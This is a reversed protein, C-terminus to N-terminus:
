QLDGLGINPIINNDTSSPDANASRWPGTPDPVKSYKDPPGCAALAAVPVMVLLIGVVRM